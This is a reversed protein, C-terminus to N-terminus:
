EDKNDVLHLVTAKQEVPKGPYPTDLKMSATFKSNPITLVTNCTKCWIKLGFKNELDVYPNWSLNQEVCNCIPGTLNIDIRKFM